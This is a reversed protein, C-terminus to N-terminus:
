PFTSLLNINTIIFPYIKKLMSLCREDETLKLYFKVSYIKLNVDFDLNSLLYSNVLELMNIIQIPLSSFTMNLLDTEFSYFKDLTHDRPVQQSGMKVFMDALFDQYRRFQPWSDFIKKTFLFFEFRLEPYEMCEMYHQYHNDCLSQQCQKDVVMLMLVQWFRHYYEKMNVFHRRLKDQKVEQEDM